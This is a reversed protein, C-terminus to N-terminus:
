KWNEIKLGNIKRFHATNNTVLTADNQLAISAILLDADDLPEGKSELEAKIQGYAAPVGNVTHLTSIKTKLDEVVALNKDKKMSKYAGYFLECETIVTIFVEEFGNKVINKEINENGKLWYICMDTDLIFKGM